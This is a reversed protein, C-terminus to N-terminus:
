QSRVVKVTRSESRGLRTVVARAFYMGGALGRTPVALRHEGAGLAGAPLEAVRRGTVDHLDLRVDADAPLELRFALEHRSAPLARLALERVQPATPDADLTTPKTIILLRDTEYVVDFSDSAAGGYWTISEFAGSRSGWTAVVFTDGVIRQFSPDQELQLTGFLTALGTVSLTDSRPVGSTRGLGVRTTGFHTLPGQVALRGFTLPQIALTASGEALVDGVITGRAMLQSNPYLLVQAAHVTGADLDLRHGCALQGTRFVGGRRVVLQGTGDFIRSTGISGGDAEALSDVEFRGVGGPLLADGGLQLQSFVARSDPGRLTLTGNSGSQTAIDLQTTTLTAGGFVSAVGTGARAITLPSSSSVTAGSDLEAVGSGGTSDGVTLGGSLLLQTGPQAVRLTGVGTRGVNMHIVNNTVRQNALWLVPTGVTSTVNWDLGPWTIQGDPFHLTGGLHQFATGPNRTLGGALRLTGGDVRLLPASSNGDPDGLTCLGGVSAFGRSVQFEGRGAGLGPFGSDGISLRQEAYLAPAFTTSQAGVRLTANGTAGHAMILDGRVRVFGGQDVRGFATSSGGFTVGGRRPNTTQFSSNTLTFANRGVVILTCRSASGNGFLAPGDSLYTSGGLIELRAGGDGGISTNNTSDTQQFTPSVAPVGTSLLTIRGYSGAALGLYVRGARFTGGTQINIASSSLQGVGFSTTTTQVGDTTLTAIAGNRYDQSIVTPVSAVPFHISYVGAPAVVVNDAAAPIGNPTWLTTTAASGSVASVWNRVVADAPAALCASLLSALLACTSLRRHAALASM